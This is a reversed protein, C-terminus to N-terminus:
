EVGAACSVASIEAYNIEEVDTGSPETLAVSPALGLELRGGNPERSADSPWQTGVAVVFYDRPHGASGEQTSLFGQIVWM